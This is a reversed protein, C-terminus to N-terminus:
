SLYPARVVLQRDTRSHRVSVCLEQRSGADLLMANRRLIKEVAELPVFVEDWQAAGMVFVLLTMGRLTVM